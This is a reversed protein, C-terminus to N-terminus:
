LGRLINSLLEKGMQRGVTACVARGNEGGARLFFRPLRAVEGGRGKFFHASRHGGPVSDGGVQAERRLDHGFSGKEM